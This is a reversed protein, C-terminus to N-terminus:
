FYGLESVAVRAEEYVKGVFVLNGEGRLKFPPHGMIADLSLSFVQKFMYYDRRNLLVVYQVYHLCYDSDILKKATAKPLKAVCQHKKDVVCWLLYDDNEGLCIFCANKACLNRINITESASIFPKKLINLIDSAFPPSSVAELVLTYNYPNRSINPLYMEQKELRKEWKKFFEDPSAAAMHTKKNKESTNDILSKPM